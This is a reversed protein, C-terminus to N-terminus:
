SSFNFVSFNFTFRFGLKKGEDSKAAAETGWAWLGQRLGWPAEWPEWWEWSGGWAWLREGTERLGARWDGVQQEAQERGGITRRVREREWARRGGSEREARLEGSTATRRNWWPLFNLNIKNGWHLPMQGTVFYNVIDTFWPALNHAIHMLRENPFTKSIPTADETYDVTLRSLHDAVM